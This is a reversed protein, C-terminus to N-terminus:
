VLFLRPPPTTPEPEFGALFSGGALVIRMTEVAQGCAIEEFPMVSVLGSCAMACNLSMKGHSCDDCPMDCPTTSKVDASSVMDAASATAAILALPSLALAACLLVGIVRGVIIRMLWM